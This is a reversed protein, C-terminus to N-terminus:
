YFNIGTVAPSNSDQFMTANSSIEIYTIILTTDESIVLVDSHNVAQVKM